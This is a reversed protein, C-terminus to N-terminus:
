TIYIVQFVILQTDFNFHKTGSQNNTSVSESIKNWCFQCQVIVNMFNVVSKRSIHLALLNYIKKEVAKFTMYPIKNDQLDRELGAFYLFTLLRSVKGAQLYYCM